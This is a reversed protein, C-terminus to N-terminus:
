FDLFAAVQRKGREIFNLHSVGMRLTNFINIDTMKLVAEKLSDPSSHDFVIGTEKTVFDDRCGVKDSVIVPLGNNLAEEVVLGWAESKSPLVFADMDRYYEVLEKNPIAGLFRINEKALAKLKDEDEGFGIITLTLNPLENFVSILLSLNKM